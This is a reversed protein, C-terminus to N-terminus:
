KMYFWFSNKSSNGLKFLSSEFKDNLKEVIKEAIEETDEGSQKFKVMFRDYPNDSSERHGGTWEDDGVYDDMLKGLEDEVKQISPKKKSEIIVQRVLRTLDTETLRIIKKM